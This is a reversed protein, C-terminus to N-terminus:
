YLVGLHMLDLAARLSRLEWTLVDAKLGLSGAQIGQNQQDFRFSTKGTREDISGSGTLASRIAQDVAIHFAQVM